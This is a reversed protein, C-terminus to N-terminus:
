LKGHTTAPFYRRLLEAYAFQGLPAIVEQSILIALADVLLASKKLLQFLALVWIYV